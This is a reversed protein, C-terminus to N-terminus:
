AVEGCLHPHTHKTAQVNPPYINSPISPPQWKTVKKEGSLGVVNCPLHLFLPRTSYLIAQHHTSYVKSVFLHLIAQRHTSYVKSFFLIYLIVQGILLEM